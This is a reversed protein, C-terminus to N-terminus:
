APRIISYRTRGRKRAASSGPEGLDCPDFGGMEEDILLPFLRDWAREPVVFMEEGCQIGPAGFDAVQDVIDQGEAPETIARVAYQDLRLERADEGKAFFRYRLDEPFYRLWRSVGGFGTM